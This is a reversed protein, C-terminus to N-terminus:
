QQLLNQCKASEASTLKIARCKLLVMLCILNLNGTNIKPDLPVVKSLFYTDSMMDKLHSGGLKLAQTCELDM